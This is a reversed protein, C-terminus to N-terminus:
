IIRSPPVHTGAPVTAALGARFMVVVDFAFGGERAIGSLPLQGENRPGCADPTASPWFRGSSHFALVPCFMRQRVGIGPSAWELGTTQPFRIKTVLATLLSEGLKVLRRLERIRERKFGSGLARDARELAEGFGRVLTLERERLVRQVLKGISTEAECAGERLVDFGAREALCGNAFTQVADGSSACVPSLISPCAEDLAGGQGAAWVDLGDEEGVAGGADGAAGALEHLLQLQDDYVAPGDPRQGAAHRECTGDQRLGRVGGVHM